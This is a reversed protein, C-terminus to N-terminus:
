RAEVDRIRANLRCSNAGAGEDAESILHACREYLVRGADTVSLRRTTRQLLRVGLQEELHTRHRSVASELTGLARGASTFSQEQVVKTFVAIDNLKSRM